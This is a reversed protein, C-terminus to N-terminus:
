HITFPRSSVLCWPRVLLSPNSPCWVRSLRQEETRAWESPWDDSPRVRYTNHGCQYAISRDADPTAAMRCAVAAIQWETQTTYHSSLFAVFVGLGWFFFAIPLIASAIKARSHVSPQV